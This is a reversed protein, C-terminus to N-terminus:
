CFGTAQFTTRVKLPVCILCRQEHVTDEWCVKCHVVGYLFTVYEGDEGLAHRLEFALVDLRVFSDM